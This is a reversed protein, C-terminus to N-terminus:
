ERRGKSKTAPVVPSSGAVEPDVTRNVSRGPWHWGVSEIFVRDHPELATPGSQPMNPAMRPTWDSEVQLQGPKPSPESNEPSVRPTARNRMPSRHSTSWRQTAGARITCAEIFDFIALRPMEFQSRFRQLVFMVSSQFSDSPASAGSDVSSAEPTLRASSPEIPGPAFEAETQSKRSRHRPQDTPM